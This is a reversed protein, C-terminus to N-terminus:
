VELTLKYLENKKLGLRSSVIKAAESKSVGAKIMDIMLEKAADKEELEELEKREEKGEIIIVFEGKPRIKSFKKILDSTKGRSIEEFKKTMERAVSISREGFALRIDNLTRLLRHPAEYLIMTRDENKLLELRRLRESTKVPLFGEFTFRDTKLGSVCLASIM